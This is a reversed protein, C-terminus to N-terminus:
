PQTWELWCRLSLHISLVLLWWCRHFFWLLILIRKSVVPQQDVVLKDQWADSYKSSTSTDVIEPWTGVIKSWIDVSWAGREVIEYWIDVTWSKLCCTMSKLGFTSTKPCFTWSKPCFGWCSLFFDRCNKVIFVQWSQELVSFLLHPNIEFVLFLDLFFWKDVRM